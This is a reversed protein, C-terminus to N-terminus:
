NRYTDLFQNLEFTYREPDEEALQCAYGEWFLADMLEHFLEVM